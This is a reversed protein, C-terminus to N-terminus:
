SPILDPTPPLLCIPGNDLAFGGHVTDPYRYFVGAVGGRSSARELGSARCASGEAPDASGVHFMRSQWMAGAETRGAACGPLLFSQLAASSAGGGPMCKSRQPSYSGAPGVGVSGTKAQRGESANSKQRAALHGVIRWVLKVGCDFRQRVLKM